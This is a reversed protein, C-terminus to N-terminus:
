IIQINSNCSREDFLGDLLNVRNILYYGETYTKLTLKYRPLVVVSYVCSIKDDWVGESDEQKKNAMKSSAVCNRVGTQLGRRYNLLVQKSEIKHIKEEDYFLKM